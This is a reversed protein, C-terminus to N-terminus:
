GFLRHQEAHWKEVDAVSTMPCDDWDSHCSCSCQEGSYEGDEQPVTGDCQGDGYKSCAASYFNEYSRTAVPIGIHNAM